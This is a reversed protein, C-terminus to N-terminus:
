FSYYKGAMYFTPLVFFMIRFYFESTTANGTGLSVFWAGKGTTLNQVAGIMFPGILVGTIGNTANHVPTNFPAFIGDFGIFFRQRTFGTFWGSPPLPIGAPALGWVGSYMGTAWAPADRGYTKFAADSENGLLSWNQGDDLTWYASGNPYPNGDSGSAYYFSGTANETWLVLYYTTNITVPIDDFNFEVWGFNPYDSFAPPSMTAYVLTEETLNDRVALNCPLTSNPNKAMYIQVRTLIKKAPIFSQGVSCNVLGGGFNVYGVTINGTYNTTQAQDVADEYTSVDAPTQTTPHHPLQRAADQTPLPAAAAIPSLLVSTIIAILLLKKM